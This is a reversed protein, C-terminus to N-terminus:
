MVRVSFVSTLFVSVLGLLGKNLCVLMFAFFVYLSETSVFDEDVKRGARHIFGWNPM